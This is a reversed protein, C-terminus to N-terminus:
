LVDDGCKTREYEESKQPLTDTPEESKDSLVQLMAGSAYCRFCLVQLMAGSAYCRFCLVQLM